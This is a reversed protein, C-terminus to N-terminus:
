CLTGMLAVRKWFCAAHRRPAIIDTNRQEPPQQGWALVQVETSSVSLGPSGSESKGRGAKVERGVAGKHFADRLTKDSKPIEPTSCITPAAPTWVRSSGLVLQQIKKLSSLLPPLHELRLKAHLFSGEKKREGHTWERM